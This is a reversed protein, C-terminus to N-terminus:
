NHHQRRPSVVTVNSGSRPGVKTAEVLTPGQAEPRGCRRMYEKVPDIKEEDVDDKEKSGRTHYAFMDIALHDTSVCIFLSRIGGSQESPGHTPVLRRGKRHYPCRLACPIPHYVLVEQAVRRKRGERVEILM